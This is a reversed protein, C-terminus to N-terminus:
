SSVRVAGYRKLGHQWGGQTSPVRLTGSIWAPVKVTKPINKNETHTHTCTHTHIHEKAKTITQRTKHKGDTNAMEM